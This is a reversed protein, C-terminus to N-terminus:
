IGFVEKVCLNDKDINNDTDKLANLLVRESFTIRTDSNNNACIVKVRSELLPYDSLQRYKKANDILIVPRNTLLSYGFTTTSTYTFIFIDANHWVDEFKDVLYEDVLNNFLGRVENIRDPHAKYMVYYGNDNLLNILRYELDIEQYFFLGNESAYRISNAPYGMVMVKKILDTKDVNLNSLFTKYFSNDNSSIYKTNSRKEISLHSYDRNYRKAIGNTPVIFNNCHSVTMEHSHRYRSFSADNGHHFCYVEVGSRQFSLTILKHFPNAVETVLLKKPKTKISCLGFYIKSLNSIRKIWIRKIIDFDINRFFLSNDNKLRLLFPNIIKDVLLDVDNNVINNEINTNQIIDIWEKNDCFFTNKLIFNQKLNDNSGIGVISGTNFFINKILRFINLHLNFFINKVIRRFRRKIVGFPYDFNSYLSGLEEWDPKTYKCSDSGILLEIGKSNSYEKVYNYHFIQVLNFVFSLEILAIDYPPSDDIDMLLEIYLKNIKSDLELFENTSVPWNYNNSLYKIGKDRVASMDGLVITRNKM